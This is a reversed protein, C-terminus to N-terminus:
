AGRARGLGTTYASRGRALAGLVARVPVTRARQVARRGRLVGPLGRLADRKARLVVGPRGSAAYFAVMLLNVLLHQPLYLVALVGPMDKAYTWVLNRQAHYIQFDSTRGSTASGVHRVVSDPVYRCRGGRLRMRFGLDVDELYCFWTEDFGGAALFAERRYLAAAGCPSFVEGPGDATAQALPRGHDRRWAFGSVHLVDGTGDLVGDEGALLLRSAFADAEPHAAAAALLAALWRPEAFADPNLLAVLECDEARRVAHNNAAAFGANAGLPVLEVEPFREAIREPSGDTSGNDVVIVRDPKTTGRRLEELAREIEAGGDLNVVVVAVRPTVGAV